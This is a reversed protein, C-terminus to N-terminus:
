RSVWGGLLAATAKFASAMDGSMFASWALLLGALALVAWPWWRRRARKKASAWETPHRKRWVWPKISDIGPKHVGLGAAGARRQANSYAGGDFYRWALGAEVMAENICLGDADHLTVVARGYRDRARHILARVGPKVRVEVRRGKRQVSGQRAVLAILRERAEYGLPQRPFEPADIGWLRLRDWRREGGAGPDSVITLGDGDPVTVRVGGLDIREPDRWARGRFARRRRRTRRRRRGGLLIVAGVGACVWLWEIWTM